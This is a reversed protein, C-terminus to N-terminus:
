PQTGKPSSVAGGVHKINAAKAADGVRVIQGWPADTDGRIVLTLNPNAAAAEKLRQLLKDYTVPDQGGKFYLLGNKAITVLITESDAGAGSQKQTSEPLNLKLAPQQKFTTTVMLFILVVILVDILSVIIVAPTGRRKRTAFQM